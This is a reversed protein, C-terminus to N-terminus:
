MRYLEKFEGHEKIQDKSIWGVDEWGSNLKVHESSYPGPKKPTTLVSVPCKRRCAYM